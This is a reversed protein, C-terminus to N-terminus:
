PNKNQKPKQNVNYFILLLIITQIIHDIKELKGIAGKYIVYSMMSTLIAILIIKKTKM